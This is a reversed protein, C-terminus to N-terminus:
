IAASLHPAQQEGTTWAFKDAGREVADRLARRFVLEHWTKSFPANPVGHNVQERLAQLRTYAEGNAREAKTIADLREATRAEWEQQTEGHWGPGYLFERRKASPTPRRPTRPM